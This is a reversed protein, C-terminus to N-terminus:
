AYQSFSIKTVPVYLRCSEIILHVWSRMKIHLPYIHSIWRYLGGTAPWTTALTCIVIAIPIFFTLTAIVYVLIVKSGFSAMLPVNRLNLISTVTMAILLSCNLVRPPSSTAQM